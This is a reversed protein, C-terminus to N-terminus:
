ENSKSIDGTSNSSNAQVGKSSSYWSSSSGNRSSKEKKHAQKGGRGEASVDQQTSSGPMKLELETAVNNPNNDDTQGSNSSRPHDLTKSRSDQKSSINSSSAYQASPQDIPPNASYPFFTSCANPFAGCNQNGFFPFPQLSAHMSIPAPPVAVPIPYSYAPAMAVSPDVPAWPFMIRLSHQYRVNLNEVESKLSAKEERIENKEQMLERSEESLADYEVKLRNVESTLDKLMQITDTLITAKDNKPRDPDTNWVLTNALELFQENLQDRRLKERDAKQVKRATIPDKVEVKVEVEPRRRSREPMSNQNQAHNSSPMSTSPGFEAVVSESFDRANWQDMSGQKESVLFSSLALLLEVSCLSLFCRWSWLQLVRRWIISSSFSFIAFSPAPASLM